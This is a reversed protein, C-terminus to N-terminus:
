EEASDENCEFEIFGSLDILTKAKADSKRYKLNICVNDSLDIVDANRLLRLIKSDLFELKNEQLQFDKIVNKKPLFSADFKTLRNGKLILIKVKMLKTFAKLPLSEINNYALNLHTIQPIEDFIGEEIKSINNREITLERLQSLGEFDTKHLTTLQSQIVVIQMLYPLAEAMKSPFFLMKQNVIALKKISSQNQGEIQLKSGPQLLHLDEFECLNKENQVNETEEKCKAKVPAICKEMIVAMFEKFAYNPHSINTCVNNSFDAVELCSLSTLFNANIYKLKNNNLFLKKLKHQNNFLQGDITTLRNHSLKVVELNINNKFASDGVIEINNQSLDLEELNVLESFHDDSIEVLKNSSFDVVLLKDMNLFTRSDLEYLGSHTVSLKQLSSFLQGLNIPLFLTNQKHIVLESHSAQTENGSADVVKMIKSDPSAVSLDFTIQVESTNLVSMIIETENENQGSEMGNQCKKLKKSQKHLLNTSADLLGNYCNKELREVEAKLDRIEQEYKEFSESCYKEKMAEPDPCKTRLATKLDELNYNPSNNQYYSQYRRRPLPQTTTTTLPEFTSIDICQNQTFDLTSIYNMNELLNHGVAIIQNNSFSVSKLNPTFKFLDSSLVSIKNGTITLTELDTLNKLDAAQIVKLGCLQVKLENLHPFFTGLGKPLYHIELREFQIGQFTSPSTSGNVSAITENPSSITLSAVQCYFPVARIMNLVDEYDSLLCKLDLGFVSPMFLSLFIVVLSYRLFLILSFLFFYTSYIEYRM